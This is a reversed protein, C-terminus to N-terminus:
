KDELSYSSISIEEQVKWVLTDLFLCVFSLDGTEGRVHISSLGDKRDYLGEQLNTWYIVTRLCPCFFYILRAIFYTKVLKM